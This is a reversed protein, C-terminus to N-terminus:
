PCLILVIIYRGSTSGVISLFGIYAEFSFFPEPLIAFFDRITNPIPGECEPNWSNNEM